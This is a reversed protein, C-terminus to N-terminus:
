SVDEVYKMQEPDLQNTIGLLAKSVAETTGILPRIFAVPAAKAVAAAAGRAGRQATDPGIEQVARTAMSINRGLSQYALNIGQKIDHPQDAYLSVVKKQQQRSSSAEPSELEEASGAEDHYYDEEDEYDELNDSYPSVYRRNRRQRVTRAAAGSGGMAQEASELIAQTGAALKAGLKVLETTTSKAFTWAGKQIGRVLRGDKRYEEVPIWILDRVGSGLRVLSRVPALGALVDGLQTSRIDPMWSGNLLKTLKPFGSVGYLEIHRLIIDAEDLVFFNMFETTHGSKLGAYDVKKPKYDLKVKIARIEARQIFVDEIEQTGQEIRDDKFEFFRTLFDLTDQDVHLRLPLVSVVLILESVALDRVPKVSDLVVHAIGADPEREGASRMYFLFKKWTSTPVNDIIELDGVRLNVRNLLTGDEEKVTELTEYVVLEAKLADVQISVKDRKSRQLKLQRKHEGSSGRATGNMIRSRNCRTATVSTSASADDNMGINRNIAHRLSSPDQDAPIGVYISNFLLDGVVPGGLPDMASDERDNFDAHVHERENQLQRHVENAVVEVRKVAQTITERTYAWDYGDYLKWIIRQCFVNLRLVPLGSWSKDENVFSEVKETDGSGATEASGPRPTKKRNAMYDESIALVSDHSQVRQEFIGFSGRFSEDSNQLSSGTGSSAGSKAALMNLDQDLLLDAKSYSSSGLGGSSSGSWKSRNSKDTYYSEVFDLNSPLDDSILDESFNSIDDRMVSHDGFANDDIGEFTDVLAPETRYKAESSTEIETKLGNILEILTQTSDACSEITVLEVTLDGVTGNSFNFKLKLSSLSAIVTYGQKAFSGILDHSPIHRTVGHHAATKDLYKIDDILLLWSKRVSLTLTTSNEDHGQSIVTEGDNIVLLGRARSDFPELEVICDVLFIIIDATSQRITSASDSLKKTQLTVAETKSEEDKGFTQGVM